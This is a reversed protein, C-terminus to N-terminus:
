LIIRLGTDDEDPKEIGEHRQIGEAEPYEGPSTAQQRGIFVCYSGRVSRPGTGSYQEWHAKGRGSRRLLKRSTKKGELVKLASCGKKDPTGM